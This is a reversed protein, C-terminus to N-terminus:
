EGTQENIIEGCRVCIDGKYTVTKKRETLSEFLAIVTKSSASSKFKEMDPPVTEEKTNHRPKFKHGFIYGMIGVCKTKKM